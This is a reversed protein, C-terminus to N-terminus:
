TGDLLLATLETGLLATLETGHVGITSGGEFAFVATTGPGNIFAGHCPLCISAGAGAAAGGDLTGPGDIAGGGGAAGAAAGGDITGAAAGM